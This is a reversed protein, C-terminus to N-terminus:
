GVIDQYVAVVRTNANLTLTLVYTNTKRDFTGSYEVPEEADGIWVKFGRFAVGYTGAVNSRAPVRLTIQTGMDRQITFPTTRPREEDSLWVPIELEEYGPTVYIIRHARVELQVQVPYVRIPPLIGVAVCPSLEV